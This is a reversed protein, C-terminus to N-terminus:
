RSELKAAIALIRFKVVVEAQQWASQGHWEEKDIPDTEDPVVQNALEVLAAALCSPDGLMRGGKESALWVDLVAQASQAAKSCLWTM